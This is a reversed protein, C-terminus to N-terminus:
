SPLEQRPARTALAICTPCFRRRDRTDRYHWGGCPGREIHALDRTLRRARRQAATM